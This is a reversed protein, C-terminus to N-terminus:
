NTVSPIRDIFRETNVIARQVTGRAVLRNGQDVAQVEFTVTKETQATIEASATITSGVGSALVHDVNVNIGVSTQGEPLKLAAVTAAELWAILVPTGLVPVNGSGVAIATDAETVERTISSM